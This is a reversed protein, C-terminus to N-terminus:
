KIFVPFFNHLSGFYQGQQPATVGKKVAAVQINIDGLETIIKFAIRGYLNYGNLSDAVPKHDTSGLERCSPNAYSKKCQM